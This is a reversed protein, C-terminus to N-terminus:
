PLEGVHPYVHRELARRVNLLYGESADKRGDWYDLCAQRLTLEAPPAKRRDQMPDQGELLARRVEDRKARAAALGILPYPGLSM